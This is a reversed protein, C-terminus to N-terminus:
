AHGIHLMRHLEDVTVELEAAAEEDWMRNNEECQKIFQPDSAMMDILDEFTLTDNM